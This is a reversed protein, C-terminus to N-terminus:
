HGNKTAYLLSQLSCAWFGLFCFFCKMFISEPPIGIASVLESWPGLQGAYEGSEPRIYDGQTLAIIGDVVMYGFNFVALLITLVRLIKIKM